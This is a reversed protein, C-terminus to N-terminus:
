VSLVIPFRFEILLAAAPPNPPLGAASFFFNLFSRFDCGCALAALPCPLLASYIRSKWCLPPIEPTLFLFLLLFDWAQDGLKRLFHTPPQLAQPPIKKVTIKESNM